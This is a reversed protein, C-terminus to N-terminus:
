GHVAAGKLPPPAKESNKLTRCADRGIAARYALDNAQSSNFYFAMLDAIVNHGQPIGGLDHIGDADLLDLIRQRRALLGSERLANKSLAELQGLYQPVPSPQQKRVRTVGYGSQMEADARYNLVWKVFEAAIRNTGARGLEEPLVTAALDRLSREHMGPFQAAQAWARSARFPLAAATAILINRLITRRLM